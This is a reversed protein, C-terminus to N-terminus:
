AGPGTVPGWYNPSPPAARYDQPNYQFGQAYGPVRPTSGLHWNGTPNGSAPVAPAAATAGPPKWTPSRMGAGLMRRKIDAAAASEEGPKQKMRDQLAKLQSQMAEQQHPLLDPSQMQEQLKKVLEPDGPQPGVKGMEGAYQGQLTGQQAQMNGQYAEGRRTAFPNLGGMRYSLPNIDGIKGDMLRDLSWGHDPSFDGKQYKENLAQWEPSGVPAADMQKKIDAASTDFKAKNRKFIDEPSPNFYDLGLRRGIQGRQWTLPNYASVGHTNAADEYAHGGAVALAPVGVAARGASFQRPGGAAGPTTWARNLKPTMKNVRSGVAKLGQGVAQMGTGLFRAEKEMRVKVNAADAAAKVLLAAQVPTFGVTKVLAAIRAAAVKNM